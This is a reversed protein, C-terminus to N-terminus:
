STSGEAIGDVRRPIGLPNAERLAAPLLADPVSQYAVTRLFRDIARAGVSTSGDATSAPYPGGHQMAWTVAVGTPWGGVIVRGAREALALILRV